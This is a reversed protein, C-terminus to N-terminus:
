FFVQVKDWFKYVEVQKGLLMEPVSYRNTDLQIYGASDVVRYELRYVEPVHVPM